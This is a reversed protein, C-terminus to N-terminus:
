VLSSKFHVVEMYFDHAKKVLTNNKNNTDIDNQIQKSIELRALQGQTNLFNQMTKSRPLAYPDVGLRVLIMFDDLFVDYTQKGEALNLINSANRAAQGKQANYAGSIQEPMAWLLLDLAKYAQHPAIVSNSVKSLEQKYLALQADFLTSYSDKYRHNKDALTGIFAQLEQELQNLKSHDKTKQASAFEKQLRALYLAEQKNTKIDKDLLLIQNAPVIKKYSETKKYEAISLLDIGELLQMIMSELKKFAGESLFNKQKLEQLDNYLTYLFYRIERLLALSYAPNNIKKLREQILKLSVRSNFTKIFQDVDLAGEQLGVKLSNLYLAKLLLYSDFDQQDHLVLKYKQMVKDLTDEEIIDRVLLGRNALAKLQRDKEQQNIGNIKLSNRTNYKNYWENFDSMLHNAKVEANLFAAALVSLFLLNKFSHKLRVM